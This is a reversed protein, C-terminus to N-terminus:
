TECYAIASPAAQRYEIKISSSQKGFAQRALGSVILATAGM